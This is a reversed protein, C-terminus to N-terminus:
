SPEELSVCGLDEGSNILATNMQFTHSCIVIDAYLYLVVDGEGLSLLGRCLDKRTSERKVVPPWRPWPMAGALRNPTPLGEM